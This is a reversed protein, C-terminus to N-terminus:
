RGAGSSAGRMLRGRILWILLIGMAALVLWCWPPLPIPAVFNTQVPRQMAEALEYSWVLTHGGDLVQHANSQKVVTPLHMVYELEYGQMQQASPTVLGGAFVERPDIIRQFDVNMGSRQVKVDGLLKVMPDPLSPGVAEAEQDSQDFLKALELVSDFSASLRLRVEARNKEVTFEELEVGPEKAFYDAITKRLKQEGGLSSIAFAPLRYEAQLRGSGDREFWFEERGGLCAGVLLSALLVVWRQLLSKM